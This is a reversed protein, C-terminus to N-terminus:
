SHTKLTHNTRFVLYFSKQVSKHIIIPTHTHSLCMCRQMSAWTLCCPSRLNVDPKKRVQEGGQHKQSARDSLSSATKDVSAALESWPAKQRGGRHQTCTQAASGLRHMSPIQVRIRHKHLLHRVWHGPEEAQM